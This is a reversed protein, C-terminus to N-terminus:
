WITDESIQIIVIGEFNKGISSKFIKHSPLYEILGEGCQSTMDRYIGNEDKDIYSFLFKAAM